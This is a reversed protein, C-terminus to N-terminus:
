RARYGSPMWLQQFRAQRSVMAFGQGVLSQKLM